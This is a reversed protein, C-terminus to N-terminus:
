GLFLLPGQIPAKSKRKERELRMAKIHEPSKPKGKSATPDGKRKEWGKRMREKLDDSAKIGKNHAAHSPKPKGKTAKSIKERTEKTFHKDKNWAISLARRWEESFRKGKNPSPKGKKALSMNKKAIDTKKGGEGGLTTNYGFDNNASSLLDIFFIEASELTKTDYCQFITRVEFNGSGYKKIARHFHRCKTPKKSDKIHQKWRTEISTTTKGVYYKGTLKNIVVYISFLLNM